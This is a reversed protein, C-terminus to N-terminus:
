SFLSIISFIDLNLFFVLLSGLVLFPAFPIQTKMGIKGKSFILLIISFIAGIWFALIVASFGLLIGLLWGLGLVLKVDGLGMWKGRSILWLLFFPLAVIPGALISSWSPIVFLPGVVYSNLFISFLSIIAFPYVLRDPIIKHRIDYVTIIILLSFIVTFLLLFFLYYYISHFIFLPLFYLATLTFIIGMIIEVIIYQYSISTKCKKCRGKLYLFSFVPILEHWALQKGCSMCMSRGKIFSKGTGLRYIVVNLFSGIVVGFIFILFLILVYM